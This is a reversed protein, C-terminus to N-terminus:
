GPETVYQVESHGDETSRETLARGQLNRKNHRVIGLESVTWGTNPKQDQHREDN